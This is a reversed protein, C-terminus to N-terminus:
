KASKWLVDFFKKYSEVATKSEILFGYPEETYILIAVKNGSIVTETLEESEKKTYKVDSYKMQKIKEGQSKLSTYFIFQVPKKKQIRRSHFIEWFIEGMLEHAIKSGGYDYLTGPEELMTNWIEKIGRKGQFM